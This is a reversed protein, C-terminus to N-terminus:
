RIGTVESSRRAEAPRAHGLAALVAERTANFSANGRTRPRALDIIVEAAIRGPQGGEMVVIRDGL